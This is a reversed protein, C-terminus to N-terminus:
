LFGCCCVVRSKISKWAVLLLLLLVLKAKSRAQKHMMLKGNPTAVVVKLKKRKAKEARNTYFAIIREKERIQQLTKYNKWINLIPLQQFFNTRVVDWGKGLFASVVAYMIAPMFTFLLTLAFKSHYM